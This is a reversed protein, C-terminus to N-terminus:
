LLKQSNKATPTSPYGFSRNERFRRPARRNTRDHFFRWEYHDGKCRIHWDGQLAILTQNIQAPQRVRRIALLTLDHQQITPSDPHEATIM